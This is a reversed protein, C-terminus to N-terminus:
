PAKELAIGDNFVIREVCPGWAKAADGYRPQPKRGADNVGKGTASRCLELGLRETHKRSIYFYANPVGRREYAQAFSYRM